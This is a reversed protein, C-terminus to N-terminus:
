PVKRVGLMPMPQPTAAHPRKRHNSGTNSRGSGSFYRVRSSRLMAHAPVRHMVHISTPYDLQRLPCRVPRKGADSSTFDTLMGAGCPPFTCQRFVRGVDIFHTYLTTGPMGCTACPPGPRGMAWTLLWEVWEILLLPAAITGITWAMVHGTTGGDLLTICWCAAPLLVAVAALYAWSASGRLSRWM